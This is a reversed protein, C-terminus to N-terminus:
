MSVGMRRLQALREAIEGKMQADYLQGQGKSRMDELFNRREDIEDLIQILSPPSLCM